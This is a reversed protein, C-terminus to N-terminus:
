APIRNDELAQRAAAAVAALEAVSRVEACGLCGGLQYEHRSAIVTTTCWPCRRAVTLYLARAAAINALIKGAAERVAFAHDARRTLGATRRCTLRHRGDGTDPDGDAPYACPPCRGLITREVPRRCRTCTATAGTPEGHAHTPVVPVVADTTGVPTDQERLDPRTTGTTGGEHARVHSSARSAGSGDPLEWYSRRPFGENSTVIGLSQRARALTRESLGEAKAAKKIDKSLTKGADTLFDELWAEATERESRDEPEPGALLDRAHQDTEGLWEVRGVHTVGDDTQVARDVLRASLSPADGPALNSKTASVVLHGSDDDKAVALVSRAVQSWAISGLILKGTDGSDRKGFHVIGLVACDAREGIGRAIAELGRRMQRDKDGDLRSDIVSTAADLIVLAAGHEMALESMAAVDTPLVVQSEFEGDEDTQVADVFIVRELDAGAAVLRPVITTDRADESHLYIVTRPEGKYEGDLTGLTVQACLDCSVTSKGLGERGALLTLGGLVIRGDWLWRQRRVKVQSARTVRLRRAGPASSEAGASTAAALDYPDGEHSREDSV